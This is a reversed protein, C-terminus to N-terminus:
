SIFYNYIFSYHRVGPIPGATMRMAREVIQIDFPKIPQQLSDNGKLVAELISAGSTNNTWPLSFDTMNQLKNYARRLDLEDIWDINAM